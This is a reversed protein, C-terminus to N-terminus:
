YARWLLGDLIRAPPRIRNADALLAEIEALGGRNRRGERRILAAAELGMAVQEPLPADDALHLGLIGLVNGDLIPILKPRKLHMIKTAVALRRWEGPAPAVFGRLAAELAPQARAIEEDTADILDLDAPLDSLLDVPAEERVWPWLRRPARNLRMGRRIATTDAEDYRPSAESVAREDFSPHEPDVSSIDETFFRLAVVEAEPLVLNGYAARHIDLVVSV